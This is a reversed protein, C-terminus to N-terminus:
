RSVDIFIISMLRLRNDLDKKNRHSVKKGRANVDHSLGCSCNTIQIAGVTEKKIFFFKIRATFETHGIFHQFSVNLLQNLSVSGWFNGHGPL